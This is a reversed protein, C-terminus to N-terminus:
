RVWQSKQADVKARVEALFTGGPIWNSIIKGSDSGKHDWKFARKAELEALGTARLKKLGGLFGVIIEDGRDTCMQEIESFRATGAYFSTAAGSGATASKAAEARSTAGIVRPVLTRTGNKGEFLTLEIALMEASRMQENLFEVIRTLEPGIKDAVIVMRIRGTSLNDDVQKWFEDITRDILVDHLLKDPDQGRETAAARFRDAIVDARLTKPAHAAYDLMQAVVERRNRTDSARKIEVLVPMGDPTLFLHDVRWRDSGDKEDAIGFERSVLLLDGDAGAVPGLLEPHSAILTQFDLERVFSSPFVETLRDHADIVFITSAM